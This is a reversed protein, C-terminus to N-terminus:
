LSALLNSIKTIIEVHSLHWASGSAHVDSCRNVDFFIDKDTNLVAAVALIDKGDVFLSSVQDEHEFTIIEISLNDFQITSYKIDFEDYFSEVKTQSVIM